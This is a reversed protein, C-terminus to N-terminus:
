AIEIVSNEGGFGDPVRAAKSPDCQWVGNVIFKYAHRGPWALLTVTHEGSGDRDRLPHADPDWDNFTGAVRVDGAQGSPYRFTIRRRRAVGTRRSSKM